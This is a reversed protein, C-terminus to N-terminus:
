GQDPRRKDMEEKISSWVKQLKVNTMYEEPAAQRREQWHM